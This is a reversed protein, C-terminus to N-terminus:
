YFKRTINFGLYWNDNNAFSRALQGMTSGLANSFNVQFGHGGLRKELGFAMAHDGPDHGALRPVFEGLVYVSSSVRLRAGLGLVFTHDDDALDGPLPNTNGAWVPMAYVAGRDAVARSVVAGVAPTYLDRFNNTGEVSGWLDIDVPSTTGQALANFQTFFQITRNSTRYVGAQWGSAIGFRLELGILAGGDLGFFDEVLSGFDGAGLPRNFRHTVRFATKSRALRASTPLNILTFDPQARDLLLDPDDGQAAAAATTGEGEARGRL